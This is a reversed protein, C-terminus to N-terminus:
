KCFSPHLNNNIMRIFQPPLLYPINNVSTPSTLSMASKNTLVFLPKRHKVVIAVYRLIYVHRVFFLAVLYGCRGGSHQQIRITYLLRAIENIYKMTAVSYTNAAYGIRTCLWSDYCSQPTNRFLSAYVFYHQGVCWRLVLVCIDKGNKYICICM